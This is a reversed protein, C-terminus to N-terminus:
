VTLNWDAPNGDITRTGCVGVTACALVPQAVLAAAVLGCVLVVRAWFGGAKVQGTSALGGSERGLRSSAATRTM